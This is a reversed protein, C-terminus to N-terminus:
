NQCLRQVHSNWSFDSNIFMGLYKANEVLEMPMSKDWYWKGINSLCNQLKQQVESVNDRSAYIMADDAFLNTVCGDTTFNSIDNIFLHFLFPGLVSGQPGGNTIDISSPLKNHCLAAQKRKRLYSSFWELEAQKIGHM